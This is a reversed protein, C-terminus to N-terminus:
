PKKRYLITSGPREPNQCMSLMPRWLSSVWQNEMSHDYLQRGFCGDCSLITKHISFADRFGVAEVWSKLPRKVLRAEGGWFLFALPRLFILNSMKGPKSDM